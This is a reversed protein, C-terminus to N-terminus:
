IRLDTKREFVPKLFPVAPKAVSATASAPAVAALTMVGALLPSKVLVPAMRGQPAGRDQQVTCCGSMDGCPSLPSQPAVVTHTTLGVPPCCAGLSHSSSKDSDNAAAAAHAGDAYHEAHPSRAHAEAVHGTHASTATHAHAADDCHQAHVLHLLGDNVPAAAAWATVCLAVVGALVARRSRFFMVYRNEHNRGGGATVRTV